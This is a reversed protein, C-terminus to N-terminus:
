GGSWGVLWDFVVDCWWHSLCTPLMAATLDATCYNIKQPTPPWRYLLAGALIRATWSKGQLVSSTNGLALSALHFPKTYYDTSTNLRGRGRTDLRFVGTGRLSTKHKNPLEASGEGLVGAGPGEGRRCALSFRFTLMLSALRTFMDMGNKNEKLTM